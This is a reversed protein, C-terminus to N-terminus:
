DEVDRRADRLRQGSAPRDDREFRRQDRVTERMRLPDLGRTTRFFLNAGAPASGAVTATCAPRSTTPSDSESSSSIASAGDGAFAERAVSASARASPPQAPVVTDAVIIAAESAPTRTKAVPPMPPTCRPPASDISM